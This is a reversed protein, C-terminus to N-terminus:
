DRGSTVECMGNARGPGTYSVSQSGDTTRSVSITVGGDSAEYYNENSPKFRAEKGNIYVPGGEDAHVDLNGPCRANLFAIRDGGHSAGRRDDRDDGRRRDDDRDDGHRHGDSRDDRRDDIRSAFTARCGKDVWVSHRSLGWTEGEVCATNSLQKVVRVDGRTDMDCEVRKQSKSECTVEDALASSPCIAAVALVISLAKRM